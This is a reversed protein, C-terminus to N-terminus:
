LVALPCMRDAQNGRYKQIAKWMRVIKDIKELM